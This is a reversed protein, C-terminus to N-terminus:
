DMPELNRVIGARRLERRYTDGNKSLLEALYNINKEAYEAYLDRDLGFRASFHLRMCECLGDCQTALRKQIFDYFGRTKQLLDLESSFDEIAGERLERYLLLLKELYNRSAMQGLLDATGLIKGVLATEPDPFPMDFLCTSLETCRIMARCKEADEPSYGQSLLYAAAFDASREVHRRTHKAGTGETDGEEQIYGADHMLAAAIGLFVHRADIPHRALVAGHLLRATALAVDRTHSLDHYPTNCARFGPYRGSFLAIVDSLVLKLRPWDLGPAALLAVARVEEEFRGDDLVHLISTVMGGEEPDSTVEAASERGQGAM